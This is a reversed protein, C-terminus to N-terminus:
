LLQTGSVQANAAPSIDADLVVGPKSSSSVLADHFSKDSFLYVLTLLLGVWLIVQQEGNVSDGRVLVHSDFDCVQAV